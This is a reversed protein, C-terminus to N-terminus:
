GGIAHMPRLPQVFDAANIHHGAWKEHISKRVASTIQDDDAGERLLARLDCEELSFLCNRLKGDATIRFRNCNQCFPESVSPIFGIRGLGDAFRYDTAPAAPDPNEEAVLPMIERSLIERITSAALVKDREWACDADLPMYEIFRIECGSQRAFHGFPVIESDTVGRIAVANIKIPDFGASRAAEIGELVQEYGSRRTIEQFKVPDLADLSINLRRLGARYLEPAQEALLIGNTTLGVDEIGPIGVIKEILTSLNRRVLPEGGTLRVKNVGLPVMLRVFREIEEFTLLDRRDMFQVNEAPMCYFCRINCRDTVSIRLNTHKRGFTDLLPLQEKM